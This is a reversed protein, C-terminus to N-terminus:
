PEQYTCGSLAPPPTVDVIVQAAGDSASLSSPAQYAVLTPPWGEVRHEPEFFQIPVCSGALCTQVAPESTGGNSRFPRLIVPDGDPDSVTPTATFYGAPVQVRGSGDWNCSTYTGPFTPPDAVVTLTPPSNRITIPYSVSTGAGWPDTVHIPVSRTGALRGAAPLGDYAVACTVKVVGGVVSVANCPDAGGTVVLPDGDPDEFRGLQAEALYRGTTADFRHPVTLSAPATVLVPPRNTIEVPVVTRTEAGNADRVVIEVSRSLGDGGLLNLADERNSYPVEVSFDVSGDALRIGPFEPRHKAYVGNDRVAGSFQAGGDSVHRFTASVKVPDGDPDSRDYVVRGTAVFASRASNYWHRVATDSWSAVFALVPPRNLVSVRTSATGVVGFEDLAEVRFVWDGSIGAGDSSIMVHPTASSADPAFQVGRSPGLPREVPPEVTWRYTVSAATTRADLVVDDTLTCLIPTGTCVHDPSVDDGSTVVQPRTSQVSEITTTLPESEMSLDNVVVLSLTYRGECGFRVKAQPGRGAIKPPDCRASSSRVSWRHEQIAGGSPDQSASADLTVLEYTEVDGVPSLAAIPRPAAACVGAQCRSGAPCEDGSRCRAPERPACAVAVSVVGLLRVRAHTM